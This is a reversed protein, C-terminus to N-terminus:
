SDFTRPKIGFEPESIHIEDPQTGEKANGESNRDIPTTKTLTLPLSLQAATVPSPPIHTPPLSAVPSLPQMIRRRSDVEELKKKLEIARLLSCNSTGYYGCSTATFVYRDKIGTFQTIGAMDRLTRTNYELDYCAGEMRQCNERLQRQQEVLKPVSVAIHEQIRYLGLSPENASSYLVDNFGTTIRLMRTSLDPELLKAM